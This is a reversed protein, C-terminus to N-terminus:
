KPRYNCFDPYQLTWVRLEAQLAEPAEWVRRCLELQRTFYRADRVLHTWSYHLAQLHLRGESLSLDLAYEFCINMLYVGGGHGHVKLTELSAACDTSVALRCRHEASLPALQAWSWRSVRGGFRSFADYIVALPTRCEMIQCMRGLITSRSTGFQSPTGYATLEEFIRQSISARIQEPMRAGLATFAAVEKTMMEDHRARVERRWVRYVREYEKGARAEKVRRVVRRFERPGLEERTRGMRLIEAALAERFDVADVILCDALTYQRCLWLYESQVGPYLDAFSVMIIRCKALKLLSQVDPLPTNDIGCGPIFPGIRRARM